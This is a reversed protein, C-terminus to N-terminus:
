EVEGNEKAKEDEYPSIYKRYLELKCSELAGIMANMEKYNRPKMSLILKTFIYNLNGEVNEKDQELKIKLNNIEQEFIERKEKLIYPM